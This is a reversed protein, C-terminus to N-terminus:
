VSFVIRGIFFLVLYINKLMEGWVWLAGAVFISFKGVLFHFRSISHAKTFFYAIHLSSSVFPLTITDHKLHHRTLHCDIKIYKTRKHFVSNHAIQISSQNDCYMTTPHSFFIRMDVLLWRLWVIKKTISTMAFASPFNFYWIKCFHFVFYWELIFQLFQVCIDFQLFQLSPSTGFCNCLCLLFVLNCFSFSLRFVLNQLLSLCFIMRFFNCFSFAIVLNFFSFLLLFILVIASVSCFYWIVSASLFDFYWIKCLRFIFYWELIFQLSQICIGFQLFQLSFLIGFCNCLCFLFVLNYFSFFRFYLNL